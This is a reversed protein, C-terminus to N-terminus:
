EVSHIQAQSFDLAMSQPAKLPTMSEKDRQGEAEEISALRDIKLPNQEINNTNKPKQTV